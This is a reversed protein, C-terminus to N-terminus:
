DSRASVQTQLNVEITDLYAPLKDQLDRQRPDNIPANLATPAAATSVVASSNSPAAAAGGGGGGGFFALQRISFEKEFFMPPVTQKDTCVVCLLTVVEFGYASHFHPRMRPSM